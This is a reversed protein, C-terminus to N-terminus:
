PMNFGHMDGDVENALFGGALLGWGVLEVFMFGVHAWRTDSSGTLRSIYLGFGAVVAGSFAMKRDVDSKGRAAVFALAVFGGFFAIMRFFHYVFDFYPEYDGASASDSPKADSDLIVHHAKSKDRWVGPTTAWIVGAIAAIVARIDDDHAWSRTGQLSRIMGLSFLLWAIADVCARRHRSDVLSTLANEKKFHIRATSLIDHVGFLALGGVVLGLDAAAVM